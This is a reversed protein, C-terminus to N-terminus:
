PLPHCTVPCTGDTTKDIRGVLSACISASADVCFARAGTQGVTIPEAVYAWGTLSSRSAAGDPLFKLEAAPGPEFRFRYGHRTPQAFGADLFNPADPHEPLCRSPPILCELRDPYGVNYSSYAAEANVVSRLDSLTASENASVGGHVFSQIAIATAFGVALLGIVALGIEWPRGRPKLLLGVGTALQLAGVLGYVAVILAMVGGGAPAGASGRNGFVLFGAVAVALVGGITGLIALTTVM